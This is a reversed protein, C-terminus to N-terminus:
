LFRFKQNLLANEKLFVKLIGWLENLLRYVMHIGYEILGGARIIKWGGKSPASLYLHRIIKWGLFKFFFKGWFLIKEFIEFNIFNRYLQDFIDLKRLFPYIKWFIGFVKFNIRKSICELFPPGFQFYMGLFPFLIKTSFQSFYRKINKPPPPYICRPPNNKLGVEPPKYICTTPNICYILYCSKSRHGFMSVKEFFLDIYM